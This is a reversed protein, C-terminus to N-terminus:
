RVSYIELGDPTRNVIYLDWDAPPAVGKYRVEVLVAHGLDISAGNTGPLWSPIPAVDTPNTTVTYSKVGQFFQYREEAWTATSSFKQQERQALMQWAGTTDAHQLKSTFTDVFARAAAVDAPSPSGASPSAIATATPTSTAAAAASATPSAATAVPSGTAPATSAGVAPLAPGPGSSLMRSGIVLALIVVAAAAVIGLPLAARSPQRAPPEAPRHASHSAMKWGELLEDTRTRSM